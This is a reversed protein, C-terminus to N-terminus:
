AVTTFGYKAAPTWGSEQQAALAQTNALADVRENEVHGNHGKIWQWRVERESAL